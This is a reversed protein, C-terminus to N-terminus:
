ERKELGEWIGERQDMRTRAGGGMEVCSDPRHPEFILMDGVWFAPFPRRVARHQRPHLWDKSVAGGASSTGTGQPRVRNELGTDGVADKGESM